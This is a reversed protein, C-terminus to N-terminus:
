PRKEKDRRIDDRQRMDDTSSGQENVQDLVYEAAIALPHATATQPGSLSEFTPTKLPKARPNAATLVGPCATLVTTAIWRPM